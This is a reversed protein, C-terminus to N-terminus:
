NAFLLRYCEEYKESTERLIDGPVRPHEDGNEKARKVWDRIIQKDMSPQNHGVKYNDASWFRSSDPTCLEDAVRLVGKEDVGFEFKTDALIIGRQLAYDRCIIYLQLSYDRVQEAIRRSNAFGAKEIAFVSQEFNIDEDHEGEPAKTTPTYIPVPLEQSEQLDEPMVYDCIRRKGNCYKAWMSGTIYGRVIAEVPVMKLALMETTRGDFHENRFCRSMGNVDATLFANPIKEGTLEFWKASMQTLIRGKNPVIVGLQEDFASVGDSAVLAVRKNDSSQWVERVKGTKIKKWKDAM